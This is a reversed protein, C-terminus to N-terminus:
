RECRRDGDALNTADAAFDAPPHHQHASCPDSDSDHRGQHNHHDDGLQNAAVPLRPLRHGHHDSVPRNLDNGARSKSRDGGADPLMRTGSIEEGYVALHEACFREGAGERDIPPGRRHARPEECAVPDHRDGAPVPCFAQLAGDHGLRHTHRAVRLEEDVPNRASPHDHAARDGMLQDRRPELRRTSGARQPRHRQGEVVARRGLVRWADQGAERLQVYAGREEHDSIECGLVRAEDAALVPHPHHDPVVAVVMGLHRREILQRQREQPILDGQARVRERASPSCVRSKRGGPPPM